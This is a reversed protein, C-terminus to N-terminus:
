GPRDAAPTATKKVRAEDRARAPPVRPEDEQAADDLTPSPLNWAVRDLEREEASEREVTTM